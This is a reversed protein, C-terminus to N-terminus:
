STFSKPSAKRHLSGLTALEIRETNTKQKIGM